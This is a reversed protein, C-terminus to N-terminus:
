VNSSLNMHEVLFSFFLMGDASADHFDYFYLTHMRCSCHMPFACVIWNISIQQSKRADADHLM